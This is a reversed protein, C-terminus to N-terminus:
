KLVVLFYGENVLGILRSLEYDDEVVYCPMVTFKKDKRRQYKFGYYCFPNVTSCSDIEQCPNKPARISIRLPDDLLRSIYIAHGQIAQNYSEVDVETFLCSWKTDKFREWRGWGTGNPRATKIAGGNLDFHQIVYDM